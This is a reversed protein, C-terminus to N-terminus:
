GLNEICVNLLSKVSQTQFVLGTIQWIMAGAKFFLPLNAAIYDRLIKNIYKFDSLSIM